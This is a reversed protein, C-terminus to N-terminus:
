RKVTILPRLAAVRRAAGASELAAIVPEIAKYADPHEEYLLEPEDCLVRGGLPSRQLSSRSHRARVKARAESRTMKRGAGHAVSCLTPAHGLGEMVWSLAGRSGLVVTLQSEEAPACGKRHLWVERGKHVHPRVTNHVLDVQGGIKSPRVAGLAQLARWCLLLRNARAWRVAGRLEGLWREQEEPSCLPERSWRGALWHGLGRSGSHALVALGGSCLGASRARERDLVQEVASVELFHNGGGATGLSAACLAADLGPPLPGSPPDTDAPELAALETLAEPLGPLACLGRPGQEWIARLLPETELGEPLAPGDTFDRMRRELADGGARSQPLGVLRAGCGADGGILGPWIRGEFALAVGIPGHKGVHLDPMGVAACCGPLGAVAELQRLAEGEMWVDPGSILQHM